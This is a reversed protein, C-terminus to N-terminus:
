CYPKRKFIDTGITHKLNLFIIMVLVIKYIQYICTMIMIFDILLNSFTKLWM